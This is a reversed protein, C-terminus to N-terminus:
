SLFLFTSPTSSIFANPAIKLVSSTFSPTAAKKSFRLGSNLPFYNITMQAFRFM